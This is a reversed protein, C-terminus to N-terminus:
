TMNPVNLSVMVYKSTDAAAPTSESGNTPSQSTAAAKPTEDKKIPPKSGSDCGSLAFILSFCMLGQIAHRM